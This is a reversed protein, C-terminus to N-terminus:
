KKRVSKKAGPKTGQSEAIALCEELTLGAPETGKPLKYNNKGIKL